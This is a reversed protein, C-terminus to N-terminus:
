RGDGDRILGLFEDTNTGMPSQGCGRWKEFVDAGVKKWAVLTGAQAQIEIVTGPGFGLAKQVEAPVEIKGDPENQRHEGPKLVINQAGRKPLELRRRFRSRSWFVVFQARTRHAPGRTYQNGRFAWTASNASASSEPELSYCRVPELGTTPVM